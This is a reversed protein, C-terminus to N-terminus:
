WSIFVCDKGHTRLKIRYGLEKYRSKLIKFIHKNLLDVRGNFYVEVYREYGTKSQVEIYSDIMEIMEKSNKDALEKLLKEVFYTPQGAKEHYAPFVRSFMIVKSM